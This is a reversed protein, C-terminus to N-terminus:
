FESRVKEEADKLKNTAEHLRKELKGYNEAATAMVDSVVKEHEADKEKM